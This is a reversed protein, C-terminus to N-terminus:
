LVVHPALGTFTVEGIGPVEKLQDISRFGGNQNRFDIIKQAMVPGVRPLQELESATARNISVKNGVAAGPAGTSSPGTSGSDTGGPPASVDIQEGDVLVRALNIDTHGRRLGGAALIADSVRSGSPLSVIGPHRVPGVVDVVVASSPATPSDSATAAPDSASGPGATSAPSQGSRVIQPPTAQEAPQSHWVGYGVVLVVAVLAIVSWRASTNDWLMAVRQRPTLEPLPVPHQNSRDSPHEM